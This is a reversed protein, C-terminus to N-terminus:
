PLLDRAAVHAVIRGDLELPIMASDPFVRRTRYGSEPGPGSPESYVEIRRAVLDIIWYVAIGARAYALLKVSRDRDPSSDAVEILLGIDAPEPHHDLYDRPSGRVLSLDPEPESDATTIASQIRVEWGAPLLSSLQKNIVHITADHTPTRPMKIALWGDLLEIPEDESLIGVRIMRHYEGVAFRRMPIAPSLAPPPPFASVDVSM